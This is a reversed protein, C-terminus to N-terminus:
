WSQQAQQLPVWAADEEPRNWDEGLSPESILASDPVAVRSEEDLITVLVKRATPLSVPELLRVNGHEDITAEFTRLM